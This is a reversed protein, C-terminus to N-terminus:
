AAAADPVRRGHHLGVRVDRSRRKFGVYYMLAGVTVPVPAPVTRGPPSSISGATVSIAVGLVEGRDPIRSCGDPGTLIAIAVAGFAAWVLLYGGLFQSM